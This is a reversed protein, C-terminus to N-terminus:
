RRQLRWMLVMAAFFIMVNGSWILAIGVGLPNHTMTADLPTSEATHQGTVILVTSLMAPVVSVAFASLFNGSRFMMGLSSGVLVLLLCSVVFAARANIESQIHDYLDVWEFLLKSRDKASRLNGHLYKEATRTKMAAIEPPLIITFVKELPAVNSTDGAEITSDPMTVKVTATAAPDKMPEATIQLKCGTKSVWQLQGGTDRRFVVPTPGATITMAGGVSSVTAGAATLTYTDPGSVFVYSGASNLGAAIRGAMAISEDEEIFQATVKQVQSGASPDNELRKLKFIDFFKTKEALLSPIEIPGFQGAAVGGQDSKKESFQRPFVVGDTLQIDVTASADPNEHIYVTADKASWFDKAVQYWKPRPPGPWEYSVVMPGELLVAQELPRDPDPPRLFAREAFVTWTDFHTEHSQEIEHAILKALNSSIVQEVRMTAAPVTFCLLFLSMVAVCVGLLMAPITMALFSIGSARCATIENDASMRGYVVTTAFLAAVPLSYTSMAPMLYKVLLFVQGGDLGKQTLPRLLGGFSMIGALAGSAMGFVKLLDWFVYWFLTRSM